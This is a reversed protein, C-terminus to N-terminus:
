RTYYYWQQLVQQYVIFTTQTFLLSSNEPNLAACACMLSQFDLFFKIEGYAFKSSGTKIVGSEPAGPSRPLTVFCWPKCLVRCFLHSYCIIYRLTYLTFNYTVMPKVIIFTLSVTSYLFRKHLIINLHKLSLMGNLSIKQCFIM